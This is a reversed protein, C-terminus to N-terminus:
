SEDLADGEKMMMDYHELQEKLEFIKRFVRRYMDVTEGNVACFLDEGATHSGDHLWMLLSMGITKDTGSLREVMQQLPEGGLFTFYYELIRRMANRVGALDDRRDASRMEDWLLEYSSKIPNGMCLVIDSTRDSKRVVHFTEHRRSREKRKPDFAVEKHFHVNHTLLVIQRIKSRPNDRIAAIMRKVLVSVIFLVDGDMSSVPDDIVVIRNTVVDDPRLGGNAIHYFYLFSLFSKEGESLSGDAVTSGDPRVIKYTAMEGEDLSFRTFGLAALLENIKRITPLVSVLQSNMQALDVTKKQLEARAETLKAGLHSIEEDLTDVDKKYEKVTRGHEEVLYRWVESKLTNQMAKKNEILANHADIAKNAFAVAEEVALCEANCDGIRMTAGPNDRKSKMMTHMADFRARMRSVAVRFRNEDLFREKGTASSNLQAVVSEIEMRYASELNELRDIAETYSKDFYADLRERLDPASQHCFPCRGDNAELYKRGKEVWDANGLAAILHAVDVDSSGVVSRTWIADSEIEKLRTFDPMEIRGVTPQDPAFVVAATKELYELTQLQATNALEAMMRAAFPEKTMCGKFAEGFRVKNKKLISEWCYEKLAEWKKGRRSIAGELESSGNLKADLGEILRETGQISKEIDRIDDQQKIEEAGMSFVSKIGDYVALNERVFDQNYVLVPAQDGPDREVSCTPYKEPARLIRSITTKGSGNAGYIYNIKSLPGLVHENADYSAVNSVFLKNIM